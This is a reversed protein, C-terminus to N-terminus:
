KAFIEVSPMYLLDRQAIDQRKWGFGIYLFNLTVSATELCAACTLADAINASPSIIFSTSTMNKCALLCALLPVGIHLVAKAYCHSFDKAGNNEAAGTARRVVPECSLNESM